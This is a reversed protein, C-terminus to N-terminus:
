KFIFIIIANIFIEVLLNYVKIEIMENLSLIISYMLINKIISHQMTNLYKQISYVIFILFEISDLKIKNKILFNKKKSYLKIIYKIKREFNRFINPYLKNIKIYLKESIEFKNIFAETDISITNMIINNNNIQFIRDISDKIIFSSIPFKNNKSTKEKENFDNSNM